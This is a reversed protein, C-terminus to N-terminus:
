AAKTCRRDQAPRSQIAQKRLLSRQQFYNDAAAVRLLERRSSLRVASSVLVSARASSEEGDNPTIGVHGHAPAAIDPQPAAAKERGKERGIPSICLAGSLTM